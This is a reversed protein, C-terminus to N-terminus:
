DSVYDNTKINNVSFVFLLNVFNPLIVVIFYLM